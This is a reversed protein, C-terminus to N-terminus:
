PDSRDATDLAERRNAWWILAEGLARAEAPHFEAAEGPSLQLVPGLSIFVPDKVGEFPASHDTRVLIHGRVQDVIVETAIRRDTHESM